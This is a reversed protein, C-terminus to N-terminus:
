FEGTFCFRYLYKTDFIPSIECQDEGFKARKIEGDRNCVSLMVSDQLDFQKLYSCATQNSELKVEYYLPDSYEVLGYESLCVSTLLSHDSHHRYHRAMERHQYPM